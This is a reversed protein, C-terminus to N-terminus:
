QHVNWYKMRSVMVKRMEDKIRAKDKKDLKVRHLTAPHRGNCVKCSRRNSCKKANHDKSIAELCGYCLKKKFMTKGRDQVPQTLFAPCDEIYHHGKECVPCNGTKNQTLERENEADKTIAYTHINQHKQCKQPRRSKEDYQDAQRSFLEWHMETGGTKCIVQFRQFYWVFSMQHIWLIKLLVM